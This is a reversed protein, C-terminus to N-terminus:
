QLRVKVVPTIGEEATGGPIFDVIRQITPMPRSEAKSLAAQTESRGETGITAGVALTEGLASIVMGNQYIGIEKGSADLVRGNVLRGVVEGEANRVVSIGEELINGQADVITEVVVGLSSGDTAVAQGNAGVKGIVNGQDDVVLGNKVRGVVNGQADRVIKEKSSVVNGAADLVATEVSGLSSGDMAVPKGNAGIKGVVKGDKDVVQGDVVRGVVNGRADRVVQATESVIAGQANVLAVTATGLDAGTLSRARGSADVTGVVQGSNNVLKGDVVRGLVVGNADRVVRETRTAKRSAVSDDLEVELGNSDLAVGRDITGLAAGDNAVARGNEDIRGVINGQADIVNGDVVKGIVRGSRDRVVTAVEKIQNIADAVGVNRRVTGLDSGDMAVAKGDVIKGVVNGQADLVQDGVIVGISKGDSGLVLDRKVASSSLDVVRGNEDLSASKEISGLSGGNNSFAKGDRVSGIVNGSRDIVQGDVIRGIMKGNADRVIDTVEKVRNIPDDDAVNRTISGLVEGNFTVAQGDVVEGIVNGDVDVVQNGVIRGAPKGDVNLVIDSSPPTDKTLLVDLGIYEFDTTGTDNPNRLVAFLSGTSEALELRAIQRPSLNLTLLTFDLDIGDKSNKDTKFEYKRGNKDVRSSELVEVNELVALVADDPMSSDGGQATTYGLDSLEFTGMLDIRDGPRLLGDISDVESVRMSKARRGIEVVDSFKRAKTSTVSLWTMPLGTRIDALLTRDVVMEIDKAQLVNAPAFEVPISRSALLNRELRDGRAMNIRPVIVRIMPVPEPEAAKRYKEEIGSLFFMAGAAAALGAVVAIIALKSVSVESM